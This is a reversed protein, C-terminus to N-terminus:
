KEILDLCSFCKYYEGGRLADNYIEEVKTIYEECNNCIM